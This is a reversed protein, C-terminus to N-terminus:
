KKIFIDFDCCDAGDGMTKTRNWKLKPHMNGSTIDDTHCFCSILQPYGYKKFVECYVCRTMDFKCRTSDTPYFKAKFGAKEGFNTVTMWHYIRPLLRYLGPFKLITQFQKASVEATAALGEDIYSVAQDPNIGKQILAEYLGIVPYIKDTHARVAKTENPNEERLEEYRKSARQLIWDASEKGMKDSLLRSFDQLTQNKMGRNYLLVRRLNM